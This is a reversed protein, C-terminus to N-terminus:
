KENMGGLIHMLSFIRRDKIKYYIWKGQRRSELIESKELKNLHISVTSQTRSVNPFIECVCKEGNLLINIIKLRTSDSLAKFLELNKDM